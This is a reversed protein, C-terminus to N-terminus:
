KETDETSDPGPSVTAHSVEPDYAVHAPIAKVEYTLRVSVGDEHDESGVFTGDEEPRLGQHILYQRMAWINRNHFEETQEEDANVVFVKRHVDSEKEHVDASRKAVELADEGADSPFQMDEPQETTPEATQRAATKKAAAKKAAPM